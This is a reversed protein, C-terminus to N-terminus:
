HSLFSTWLIEPDRKIKFKLITENNLRKFIAGTRTIESCLYGTGFIRRTKFYYPISYQLNCIVKIVLFRTETGVDGFHNLEPEVGFVFDM